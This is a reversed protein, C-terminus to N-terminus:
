FKGGFSFHFKGGDDGVGYDLRIPGIPTTIRFGLGTSVHISDDNQYWPINGTGDWASGADVFFVGQIKKAIPYRYEVTAAYMKNGRFEDDEYGRLNDAGGLTFLDYYPMDGNAYGGMFRLAIVHKRGVKYYLRNEFTLKYYDFDGGLGHGAIAATYSIRKGRTPDYVNDRNDFVHSWTLSNTRGFNKGLYDM